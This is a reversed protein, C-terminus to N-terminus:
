VRGHYIYGGRDFIVATIGAQRAREAMAKGVAEAAAVNSTSGRGQRLAAEVSSASALTRGSLDDILQASIHHLSRFVCLRPRIAGGSVKARIRTHRRDRSTRRAEAISAPM